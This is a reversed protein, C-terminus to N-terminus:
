GLIQEVQHQRGSKVKGAIGTLTVLEYLSSDINLVVFVFTIIQEKCPFRLYTISKIIVIRNYFYSM